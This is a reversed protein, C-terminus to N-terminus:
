RLADQRERPGDHDGASAVRNRHAHKEEQRAIIADARVTRSPEYSIADTHCFTGFCGTRESPRNAIGNTTKVLM